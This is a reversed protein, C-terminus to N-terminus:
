DFTSSFIAIDYERQKLMILKYITEDILLKMEEDDTYNKSLYMAKMTDLRNDKKYMCILNQEEVSFRSAIMLGELKSERVENKM